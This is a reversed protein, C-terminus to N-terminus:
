IRELLRALQYQPHCIASEDEEEDSILTAWDEDTIDKDLGPLVVYGRELNLAARM